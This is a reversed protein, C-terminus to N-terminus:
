GHYYVVTKRNVVANNIAMKLSHRLDNVQGTLFKTTEGDDAAENARSSMCHPNRPAIASPIRNNITAIQALGVVSPRAAAQSVFGGSVSLSSVPSRVALKVSNPALHFVPALARGVLKVMRISTASDLDTVAPQVEGIEKGVHSLRRFTMGKIADVIISRVAGFVAAPCGDKLLRVVLPVGFVKRYVAFGLANALPGTNAANRVLANKLTKGLAPIDLLRDKLWHLRISAANGLRSVKDFATKLLMNLRSPLSTMASKIATVMPNSAPYRYQRSSFITMYPFVSSYIRRKQRKMKASRTKTLGSSKGTIICAATIAPTISIAKRDSRFITLAQTM